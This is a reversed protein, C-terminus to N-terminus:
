NELYFDSFMTQLFYEQFVMSYDHNSDLFYKVHIKHCKIILVKSFEM